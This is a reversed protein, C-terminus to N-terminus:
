SDVAWFFFGLLAVTVLLSGAPFVPQRLGHQSRYKEGKCEAHLNLGVM